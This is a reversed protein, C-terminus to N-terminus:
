LSLRVWPWLAVSVIIDIFFELSVMPFRVQSMGAQLATGWGVAGGRAGFFNRTFSEEHLYLLRNKLQRLSYLRLSPCVRYKVDAPSPLYPWMFGWRKFSDRTFPLLKWLSSFHSIPGRPIPIYLWLFLMNHLMYCSTLTIFLTAHVVYQFTSYVVWIYLIARLTFRTFGILHFHYFLYWM